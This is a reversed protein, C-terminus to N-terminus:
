ANAAEQAAKLQRVADALLPCCADQRPGFREIIDQRVSSDRSDIWWRASTEARYETEILARLDAVELAIAILDIDLNYKAKMQLARDASWLRVFMEDLAEPFREFARVRITEAWAIQKESGILTPLALEASKAAAAEAEAARRCEWCLSQALREAKEDADDRNHGYTSDEHGCTHTFTTKAM